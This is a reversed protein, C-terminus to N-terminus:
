RRNPDVLKKQEEVMDVLHEEMAHVPDGAKTYDKSM